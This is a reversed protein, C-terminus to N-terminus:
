RVMMFLRATPRYRVDKNIMKEVPEVLEIPMRQAIEGFAETM